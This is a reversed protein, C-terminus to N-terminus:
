NLDYYRLAKALALFEALSDDKKECFLNWLDRPIRLDRGCRGCSLRVGDIDRSVLTLSRTTCFPCDYSENSMQEGRGAPPNRNM